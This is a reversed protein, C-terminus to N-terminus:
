TIRGGKGTRKVVLLRRREKELGYTTNEGTALAVMIIEVMSITLKKQKKRKL